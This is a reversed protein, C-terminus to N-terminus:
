RMRITGESITVFKGRLTGGYTKILSLLATTIHEPSDNGLRLFIVGAHKHSQLVILRGFDRDLTVLIRKERRALELVTADDAGANEEGISKVNHGHARLEQAVMGGINEDLLLKQKRM